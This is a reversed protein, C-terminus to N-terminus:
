SRDRCWSTSLRWLFFPPYIPHSKPDFLRRPAGGTGVINKCCKRKLWLLPYQQICLTNKVPGGQIQTDPTRIGSWLGRYKVWIYSYFGLYRSDLFILVYIRRMTCCSTAGHQVMNCWTACQQVMNCWTAGQQMMNCLTTGDQVMKCWRTGYQVM